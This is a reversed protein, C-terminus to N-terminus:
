VNEGHETPSPVRDYRFQEERQSARRNFPFGALSAKIPAEQVNAL